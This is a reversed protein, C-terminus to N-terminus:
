RGELEGQSQLAEWDGNFAGQVKRGRREWVDESSGKREGGYKERERRMGRELVKKAREEDSMFGRNTRMCWWFDSWEQSCQRLQGYRYLSTFQGGLSACYFATDFAARCSVTTPHIDTPTIITPNPPQQPFTPSPTNPSTQSSSPESLSTLFARLEADAAEDRTLTPTPEASPTDQTSFPSTTEKPANDQSSFPPSNTLDSQSSERIPTTSNSSDKPSTWLWGM